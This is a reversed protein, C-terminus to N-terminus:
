ETNHLFFGTGMQRNENRKGYFVSYYGSRVTGGKGWRVGQVGVSDSKYRALERAVTTLHVQGICAGLV